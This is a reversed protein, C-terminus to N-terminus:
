KGGNLEDPKLVHILTSVPPAAEAEAGPSAAAGGAPGLLLLRPQRLMHLETHLPRRLHLLVLRWFKCM